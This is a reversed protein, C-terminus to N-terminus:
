AAAKSGIVVLNVSGQCRSVKGDKGVPVGIKGNSSWGYSGTSFVKPTLTLTMGDGTLTVEKAHKLFDAADEFEVGNVIVKKDLKALQKSAEGIDMKGAKFADLIEERTAM